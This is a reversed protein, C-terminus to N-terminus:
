RFRRYFSAKAVEAALVYLLTIGMVLALMGAPMPAFGLLDAFPLYPLLVTLVFVGITLVMLLAGPQSRFFPRRTRVVLAIVLETMLSETFWGTRFLLPSAAFLGLLAGFMLFDFLSSLLGFELMFRGIFNMDWRRPRDVLEPDVKDDAMGLAPADSLLNNLLIQSALLPLFPLFISAVAMSIMNGLNASTTTLVYKLTNAFTKRGEEIGRRLVDLHRDLLVFDAAEKAVDVAQDVSISTDAAHMAPADNVGDGLFGVVHGMKKFALIIREKQNPDVEAFIDTREAVHWLAEGHLRDLEKGTLAQDARMGVIAAVHQAVLKTDGTILKLSVGLSKLDAIAETVGAKPRDLFAIFGEFTLSRAQERPNLPIESLVRTAVALVRVGCHSWDRVKERLAQRHAMDLCSGDALQVCDELVQDFAGKTIVQIGEATQVIISVRKHAFDFPIEALKKVYSADPIQTKLIAEDLPNKIGTQLAANYAALDLVRASQEGAADYAGEVQIVGETLTGTKDTCLVDMSGLNEIANLRRVLVGHKAMMEAGRALSVTLIAPLLEPSLGVALAVAFLLTEVPPRGFIVNVAFVVLVMVLMASALFYGFHRIGRDFETEPPRLSLRHAIRGYQTARGTEVVVCRASGSRVNTGLFVCNTCQAVSAVEAVVGSKKAVPFSEGTLVAENVFFDNAELIIADAPVLSGASLLVVDGPVVDRAPMSVQRGDRMLSARTRVRAQLKAAATEARYERSFGIGISASLIVLVIVADPWENAMVSVIVAFFLLLLLPSRVQNWLVRSKTVQQRERLENPGYQGLRRVAEVTSLGAASTALQGLVESPCHSWYAYLNM